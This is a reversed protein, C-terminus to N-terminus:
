CYFDWRQINQNGSRETKKKQGQQISDKRKKVETQKSELQVYTYIKSPHGQRGTHKGSKGKVLVMVLSQYLLGETEPPEHVCVHTLLRTFCFLCFLHFFSAALLAKQPTYQNTVPRFTGWSATLQRYTLNIVSQQNTKPSRTSQHPFTSNPTYNPEKAASSSCDKKGGEKTQRHSSHCMRAESDRQKM